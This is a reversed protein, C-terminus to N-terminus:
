FIEVNARPVVARTGGDIQVVVPVRAEAGIPQPERVIEGAVGVAGFYPDSVVRARMGVRLDEDILADDGIKRCLFSAPGRDRPPHGERHRFRERLMNQPVEAPRCKLDEAVNVDISPEEKGLEERITLRRKVPKRVGSMVNEWPAGVTTPMEGRAILRYEDGRKEILFAKTTTSGVDTALISNSKRDTM